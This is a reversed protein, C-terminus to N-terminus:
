PLALCKQCAERQMYRSCVNLIDADPLRGKYKRFVSCNDTQTPATSPSSSSAFNFNCSSQANKIRSNLTDLESEIDAVASEYDWRYSRCGDRLLDFTDPFNQCNQLEQAKSDAEGAKDSADRAARRVRDLDDQCSNWDRVSPAYALTTSVVLLVFFIPKM